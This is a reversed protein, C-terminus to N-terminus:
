LGGLGDALSFAVWICVPRGRAGRLLAARRRRHWSIVKEFRDAGHLTAGETRNELLGKIDGAQFALLLLPFTAWQAIM